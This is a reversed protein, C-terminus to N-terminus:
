KSQSFGAIIKNTLIISPDRNPKNANPNQGQLHISPYISSWTFLICKPNMDDKIYAVIFYVFLVTTNNYIETRYRIKGM